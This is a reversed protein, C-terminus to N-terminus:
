KLVEELLSKEEDLVVSGQELKAVCAALYDELSVGLKTRKDDGPHFQVVSGYESARGCVCCMVRGGITQAFPVWDSQWFFSSDESKVDALQSHVILLDSLPLFEFGGIFLPVADVSQGDFQLYLQVIDKPLVVNLKDEIGRISAIGAPGNLAMDDIPALESVADLYTQLM